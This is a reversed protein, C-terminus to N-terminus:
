VVDAFSDEVRRFYFCAAVFIVIVMVASSTVLAWPIPQNLLASRFAAILGSLPNFLILLHESRHISAGTEPLPTYITPTAFLWFQALFPIIYRFDRYAVTLASLM